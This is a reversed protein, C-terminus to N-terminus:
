IPRHRTTAGLVVYLSLMCNANDFDAAEIEQARELPQLYLGVLGNTNDATPHRTTAHGLTLPACKSGCGVLLQILLKADKDTPDM